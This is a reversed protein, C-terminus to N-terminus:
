IKFGTTRAVREARALLRSLDDESLDSWHEPIPSLRRKEDDCMFTLWGHERGDTFRAPANAPSARGEGRAADRLMRANQVVYQDESASKPVTDWVQWTRHDADTFERLPM